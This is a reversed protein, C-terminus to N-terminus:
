HEDVAGADPVHNRLLRIARWAVARTKYTDASEALVRSNHSSLRWRYRGASTRSVRFELKPREYM